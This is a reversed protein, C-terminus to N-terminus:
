ASAGQHMARYAELAHSGDSHAIPLVNVWAFTLNCLAFWSNVDWFVIALGLNMLAGAMCVSIEPWGTTRERRIYMGTWNLGIKKVPVQHLRAMLIHGSEHCVMCLAVLACKSLLALFLPLFDPSM